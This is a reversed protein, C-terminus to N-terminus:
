VAGDFPSPNDPEYPPSNPAVETTFDWVPGTTAAGHEDRAFVRWYYHTDYDLTALDCSTITADNCVVVGPTSDNAEFYVDYTVSDDDPDGGTWSLSVDVSQNTAGDSPSPNFPVNPPNNTPGSGPTYNRLVLPLYVPYPPIEIQYLDESGTWVPVDEAYESGELLAGDRLSAVLLDYAGDGTGTVTLEYSGVPPSFVVIFEEEADPGSYVSNPIEVVAGAGTSGTQRGQDDVLMLDAPSMVAPFTPDCRPVYCFLEGPDCRWTGRMTKDHITRLVQSYDFAYKTGDKHVLVITELTGAQMPIDASELDLPSITAGVTCVPTGASTTALCMLADLILKFLENTSKAWDAESLEWRYRGPVDTALWDLPQSATAQGSIILYVEEVVEPNTVSFDIDYDVLPPTSFQLIGQTWGCPYQELLNDRASFNHAVPLLKSYTFELTSERPGMSTTFWLEGLYSGASLGTPDLTFQIPIYVTGSGPAVLGSSPTYDSTWEPWSTIQWSSEFALRPLQLIVTTVIPETLNRLGIFDDM